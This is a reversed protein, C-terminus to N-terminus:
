PRAVESIARYLLAGVGRLRAWPVVGFGCWLAEEQSPGTWGTGVPRRRHARAMGRM